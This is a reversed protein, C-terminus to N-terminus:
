DEGKSISLNTEVYKNVIRANEKPNKSTSMSGSNIIASELEAMGRAERGREANLWRYMRTEAIEGDDWAKFAEWGFRAVIEAELADVLDFKPKKRRLLHATHLQEMEEPTLYDSVKHVRVNEGIHAAKKVDNLTLKPSSM